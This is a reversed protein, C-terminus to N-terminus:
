GCEGHPYTGCAGYYPTWDTQGFSFEADGTTNDVSSAYTMLIPTLFFGAGTDCPNFGATAPDIRVEARGNALNPAGLDALSWQRLSFSEVTHTTTSVLAGAGNYIEVIVAAPSPGINVVGINTRYRADYRVGPLIAKGKGFFIDFFNSPVTQGYTASPNAANYTRSTVAISGLDGSGDDLVQMLLWGKTNGEGPFLTGLVDEVLKTEGAALTITKPYVGTYANNQAERFFQVGVQVTKSSLNYVAMDSQWKTGAGGTLKAVVPILQESAIVQAHAASAAALAAVVLVVVRVRAGTARM